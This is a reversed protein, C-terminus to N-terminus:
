DLETTKLLAKMQFPTLSRCNGPKLDAPLRLEGFGFRILRIVKYNFAEFLRRVIRNRGEYVTIEYWSGRSAGLKMRNLHRLKTRATLGDQLEIGHRIQKEEEPLLRKNVLAYYHRPVKFKPHTLRYVLEGDNSLLLLGETRYDLRGVPAVFSSLRNLKPLDYITPRNRFDKRSTIIQDPKHLMLVRRTPVQKRLVKGDVEITDAKPDVKTGLQTVVEQNVRVRGDLIWKEAERRSTIGQQAMWKQIRIPEMKIHSIYQNKLTFDVL